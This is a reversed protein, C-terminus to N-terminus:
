RVSVTQKKEYEIVDSLKYFINKGIKIYSPGKNESRWNKLTGAALSWRSALNETTLVEKFSLDKGPKEM